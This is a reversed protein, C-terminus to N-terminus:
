DMSWSPCHAPNIGQSRMYCLGIRNLTYPLASKALRAMFPPFTPKSVLVPHPLFGPVTDDSWVVLQKEQIFIGKVHFNLKLDQHVASTVNILTFSSPGTQIAAIKGALQNGTQLRWTNEVSTEGARRKWNAVKGKM